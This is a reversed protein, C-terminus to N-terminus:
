LQTKQLRKGSLFSVITAQSRHQKNAPGPTTRSPGSAGFIRTIKNLNRQDNGIHAVFPGSLNLKTTINKHQMHFKSQIRCLNSHSISHKKYMKQRSLKSHKAGLPPLDDGFLM